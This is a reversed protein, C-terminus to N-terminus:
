TTGGPTLPDDDGPERAETRGPAPSASPSSSDDLRHSRGSASAGPRTRSSRALVVAVIVVIVVVLLIWKM